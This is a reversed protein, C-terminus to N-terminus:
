KVLHPPLAKADVIELWVGHAEAPAVWAMRFPYGKHLNNQEEVTFKIGNKKMRELEADFDDVFISLGMVGEGHEKLFRSHRGDDEARRQVFEIRAGNPVTLMGIRAQPLERIQGNELTLGLIKGYDAVARDVDKVAMIVHDVKRIM